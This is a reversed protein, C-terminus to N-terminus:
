PCWRTMCSRHSFMKRSRLFILESIGLIWSDMSVWMCRRVRKVHDISFSLQGSHYTSFMMLSQTPHLFSAFPMSNMDCGKACCCSQFCITRLRNEVSVWFHSVLVSIFIERSNVQKHLESATPQAVPLADLRYFITGIHSQPWRSVKVRVESSRLLWITTFTEDVELMMGLKM